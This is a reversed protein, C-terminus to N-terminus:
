FYEMSKDLRKMLEMLEDQSLQKDEEASDYSLIQEALIKKKEIIWDIDEEISDKSLFKFVQVGRTQGIRHVRDTAQNEKAFNWWRDYHIVVSAKTLDIGVGAAQITGIFVECEPDNQFREVEGKRDTTAGHLKAYGIKQSQLYSEFIAVMDLFQTFVVVKQGSMRAEDLLEVFLDWKGSQYKQYNGSDKLFLAPHNCIQKLKTLLAFIHITVQKNPEQELQQDIAERSGRYINKYLEKQEDSLDVAIVEETKEPLDLLVESKNRRLIFPRILRMLVEAREVSQGKEIPNVFMEKFIADSPLFKPLVIDILSKLELLRNEIPTGSLGIRMKADLELLSKHIQSSQNKAVQMEDFIALDFELDKFDAKDSRLVGYSTVLIDQDLTPKRRVPGHHLRAQLHPLFNKLLKEWHYMVSTPAVIVCKAPADQKSNHLAAIISMAQHTKGLGMDDCLLGSLGFRYLAYLWRAGVQQYPRLQSKLGELPPDEQRSADFSEFFNVWELSAKQDVEINEFVKLKLWDLPSLEIWDGKKAGKQLWQFRPDKLHIAGASSLLMTKLGRLAQDVEKVPVEGFESRFVLRMKWRGKESKADALVLRLDEPLKFCVPMDKIFPTLRVLEQTIFYPIEDTSIVQKQTYRDPLRMELPVEVFGMGEFYLFEQFPQVAVKLEHEYIPNIVIQQNKNLSLELYCGKLIPKRVFFGRITECEERNDRIFAPIDDYAIMRKISSKVTGSRVKQFFGSGEVYFIYGFDILGKSEQTDEKDPEISLGYPYMKYTLNAEISATHMQFGSKDQLWLRHKDIFNNVDSKLVVRRAENFPSPTLRFFGKKELFAWGQYLHSHTKSLDGEQFLYAEIVLSQQDDFFLRHKLPIPKISIPEKLFTQALDIHKSLFFGVENKQIILSTFIPDVTKKVFGIGQFWEYDGFDIATADDPINLAIKKTRVELTGGGFNFRMSEIVRDRQSYVAVDQVFPQISPILRNWSFRGMKMRVRAFSKQYVLETADGFIYIKAEGELTFLSKFLDQFPSLEFCLKDSPRKRRFLELEKLPLNSFKISNGENEEVREILTDFFLKKQDMDEISLEFMKQELFYVAVTDGEVVFEPYMGHRRYLLFALNEELSSQYRKHLPLLSAGYILDIAQQIHECDGTASAKECNCFRDVAERGEGLQLFVWTGDIEVQYTRDSFVINM